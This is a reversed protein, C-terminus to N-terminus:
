AIKKIEAVKSYRSEKSYEIGLEAYTEKIAKRIVARKVTGKRNGTVLKTKFFM